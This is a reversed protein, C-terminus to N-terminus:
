RAAENIAPSQRPAFALAIALISLPAVHMLLRPLSSNIHHQYDAWASFFYTCSYLIIPSVACVVILWTERTRTRLLLCGFAIVSAFWLLNWQGTATLAYCLSPAIAGAHHFNAAFASFTVPVFDQAPRAHMAHLYIQWSAIMAIGPLLPVAAALAGRRRWIVFVGCVALVLWLIMGERKIWPLVTALMVFIAVGGASNDRAFVLLFYFAGLYVISLPVDAYGQVVGGAFRTLFPIFLFLNAAVLGIWRKGSLRAGAQALLLLGVTYFIPFILKVWYHNPEGIWFYIWTELMPLFLPYEPHSFVRSADSFYGLPLAGGNLYAYRAKLEWIVLGDWGLTHKFTLVFVLAIELCLLISLAIDIWSLPWPGRVFLKRSRWQAVGTLALGLSIITVAAQLSIGRLFIGLLWLGLSVIVGGLLWSLAILEALAIQRANRMCLVLLGFGGGVLILLAAVTALLSTM